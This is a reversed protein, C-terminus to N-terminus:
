KEYHRESCVIQKLASVQRLLSGQLYRISTTANLCTYKIPSGIKLGQRSVKLNINETLNYAIEECTLYNDISRSCTFIIAM